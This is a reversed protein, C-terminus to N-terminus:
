PSEQTQNLISRVKQLLVDPNFPKQLFAIGEELVGHHVIANETYGSIYLVKLDPYHQNFRHALEKGSMKPMVVDTILLNISSSHHTYKQLAEEGHSAVLAEYGYDELTAKLYDRVQEEDEVILIIEAGELKEIPQRPTTNEMSHDDVRPFYIKFTTGEGEDSYVWVDGGSQKVIGYVTSLGLGTGKGEKKTTFFPDFINKIINKSIGHGTDSVALMVYSGSLAHFYDMTYEEDLEVNTTEITLKGGHPMADRANIALNIIVQEIQGPDAKINGLKPGNLIELDINEGILPRLMKEIDFIMHNLNIIRPQLVQKRSFALLQSTLSQARIGAKHIESIKRHLSSNKEIRHLAMESYGLIAVLLNNFDHAIGGALQGVAEMKQAHRFQDELLKQQTIDEYTGLVGIIQNQENRLPIKSTRLWIIEGSPTTQPEEYMLKAEGSRIVQQDDTRYDNAQDIWTLDYDTKGIIEEQSNLGADHAFLRNCGLYVCNRDKWFVRVPITDLIDKLIQRSENLAKEAKKRETVDMGIAWSHWGAIPYYKSINSWSIVKWSGDKARLQWEVNRFDFGLKETQEIVYQRYEHDPYLMELAKPNGIIEEATYGTVRECERNWVIIKRKEDFANMMVPMNQVIQRLREAGQKSAEEAQKRATIDLVASITGGCTDELNQFNAQHHLITYTHGTPTTLTGEHTAVPELHYDEPCLPSFFEAQKPSLLDYFTSGIIKEHNRGMLREFAANCGLFIGEPDRYFVPIPLADILRQQFQIQQQLHKQSKRRQFINLILIFIFGMLLIFIITLLWVLTKNEQYYSYPKNLLISGEPLQSPTIGFKIMEDYDFMYLSPPEVQIPIDSPSVGELLITAALKAAQEGQIKGSNVKGGVIGLGMWLDAFSYVPVPAAQTIQPYGQPYPIYTGTKDQMWATLLVVTGSELVRVKALLEEMSLDEGNLYIFQISDFAKAGEQIEARQGLGTPTHDSIVAMTKTKPHFRLALQITEQVDLYEIYGTFLPYDKLREEDLGNVGCFVVPVEPFLSKHYHLLFDLAKNDSSIILDLNISDYKTKLLQALQDEYKLNWARKSDMYEVHIEAQEIQKSFEDLGGDVVNDSWAYGYHYSNLLLITPNEKCWTFPSFLCSTLCFFIQIVAIANRRNLLASRDCFYLNRCIM